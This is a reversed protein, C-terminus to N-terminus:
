APRRVCRNMVATPKGPPLARDRCRPEVKRRGMEALMSQLDSLETLTDFPFGRRGPRTSLLLEDFHAPLNAPTAWLDALRNVIHPFRRATNLPQYRPPLHALWAHAKPTLSQLQPGRKPEGARDLSDRLTQRNASPASRTLSDDSAPRTHPTQRTM